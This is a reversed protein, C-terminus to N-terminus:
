HSHSPRLRESSFPTESYSTAVTQKTNSLAEFAMAVAGSLLAIGFCLGLWGGQLVAAFVGIGFAGVGIFSCLISLRTYLNKM